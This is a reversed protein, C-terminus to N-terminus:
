RHMVCVSVFISYSRRGPKCTFIAKYVATPILILQQIFAFHVYKLIAQTRTRAYRGKGVVRHLTDYTISVINFKYQTLSKPATHGPRWGVSIVFKAIKCLVNLTINHCTWIMLAELRLGWTRDCEFRRDLKGRFMYLLHLFSTFEWTATLFKNQHHTLPFFKFSALWTFKTGIGFFLQCLNVQIEIILSKKLLYLVM